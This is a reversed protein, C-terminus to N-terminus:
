NMGHRTLYRLRIPTPQVVSGFGIRATPDGKRILTALEYYRDAYVEAELEDQGGYRTDPENGVMWVRGPYAEVWGTINALTGPYLDDRLRLVRIYEVGEPLIPNTTAGWDLTPDLEWAVLRM